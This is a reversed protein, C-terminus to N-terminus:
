EVSFKLDSISANGSAFDLGLRYIQFGTTGVPLSWGAKLPTTWFTTNTGTAYPLAYVPISTGYSGTFRQRWAAGSGAAAAVNIWKIRISTNAISYSTPNAIPFDKYLESVGTALSYFQLSGDSAMTMTAPSQVYGMYYTTSNPLTTFNDCFLLPNYSSYDFTKFAGNNTTLNVKNGSCKAADIFNKLKVWGALNPAVSGSTNVGVTQGNLTASSVTFSVNGTNNITLNNPNSNSIVMQAVLKTTVSAGQDTTIVLDGPSTSSISSLTTSQGPSLTVPPTIPETNAAFSSLLTDGNNKVTIDITLAHPVSSEFLLQAAITKSVTAGEESTIVVTGAKPIDSVTIRGGIPLTTTPNGAMDKISAAVPEGNVTVNFNTLVSDGTNSLTIVGNVPDSATLGSDVSVRYNLGETTTIIIDGVGIIGSINFEIGPLIPTPPTTQVDRGNAKFGTLSIEGTNKFAFVGTEPKGLYELTAVTKTNVVTGEATTIQIEGAGSINSVMLVQGPEVTPSSLTATVPLGNVSVSFGTLPVQGTNRIYIIYEGGAKQENEIAMSAMSLTLAKQTVNTGGETVTTFMGSFWAYSTAVLAVSIMLLLIVSIIADIGRM